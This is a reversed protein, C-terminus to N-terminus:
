QEEVFKIKKHVPHCIGRSTTKIFYILHEVESGLNNTKTLEELYKLADTFLMKSQFLIKYALQINKITEEDFKKRKLGVINLRYIRARDGSAIVFPIVDKSVMAGGGVLSLKGIRCFQHVAVLGGLVASDEIKVHGALTACNAMIVEDGVECDHAVHSYAMLYCGSGIKTFDTHSGRHITTYERIICNNGVIVKTKKGKYKLDQPEAGITVSHSIKCNEGIESHEVYSYSGIVTNKKIVVDKGIIAYPGIEVSPDIEAQREVIATKHIM